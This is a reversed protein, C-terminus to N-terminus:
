YGAPKGKTRPDSAAYLLGDNGRVILQVSGLYHSSDPLLVVDHGITKLGQILAPPYDYECFVQNPILQHHCRSRSVSMLPELHFGAVALITQLVSTIIAQGTETGASAALVLYVDDDKLIITPTLSSLPRKYPAIKNTKSNIGWNLITNNMVNIPLTTFSALQNNLLIGTSPSYIGSGFPYNISSTLAVANRNADVIVMSSSGMDNLQPGLIGYYSPPFTRDEVM